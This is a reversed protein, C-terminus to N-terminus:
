DEMNDVLTAKDDTVIFSPSQIRGRPSVTSYIHDDTPPTANPYSMYSPNDYATSPKTPEMHHGPVM